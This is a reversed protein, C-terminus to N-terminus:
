VIKEEKLQSLQKESYGLLEGYIEVNHQGIDPVPTKISAPTKSLRPVIGAVPVKGIRPHELEVIMERANIQPDMIAETVTNVPGAPIGADTLLKVAEERTKDALWGEALSNMYDRNKRRLESSSFRSDDKLDERGILRAFRKWLRDFTISLYVYGDKCRIADTPASFPRANGMRPQVDNNVKYQSFVAEMFSVGADLMAIDIEQGEGTKDRHRLALLIGIAGYLGGGYDTLSSGSKTPPSDKFGTISMHGVIAQFVPDFGPREAYPGYQGYGTISAYILRENVEKLSEYSINLGKVARPTLNTVLVDSKKVLETLLTRGKENQLNLTIGKKNRGYMAVAFNEGSLTFPGLQRDIAGDPPEVRIVEAGFDALIQCCFPAAQFTGIDIVRIDELVNAV